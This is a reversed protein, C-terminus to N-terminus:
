KGFLSLPPWHLGFQTVLIIANMALAVGTNLIARSSSISGPWVGGFFAIGIVSVVASVIAIQRWNEYGLTGWFSLAAVFFGATAMAWFIVGVLAATNASFAPFIWSRVAVDAASAGGITQIILGILAVAHAVGHVFLSGAVLIKLTHISFM